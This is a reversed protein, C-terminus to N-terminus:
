WEDDRNISSTMDHCRLLVLYLRAGAQGRHNYAMWCLAGRRSRVCLLSHCPSVCVVAIVSFGNKNFDSYLSPSVRHHDLSQQKTYLVGGTPPLEPPRNGIFFVGLIHYSIASKTHRRGDNHFARSRSYLCLQIFSTSSSRTPHSHQVRYM